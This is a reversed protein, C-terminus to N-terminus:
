DILLKIAATPDITGPRPGSWTRVVSNVGSSRNVQIGRRLAAARGPLRGPRIVLVDDVRSDGNGLVVTGSSASLTQCFM